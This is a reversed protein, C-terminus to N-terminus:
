FDPDHPLPNILIMGQLRKDWMRLKFSETLSPKQFFHPFLLFYQYGTNEEKGVINEGRDFVSTAIQGLNM